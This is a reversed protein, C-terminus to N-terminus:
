YTLKTGIEYKLPDSGGDEGTAACNDESELFANLEYTDGDSSFTYVM